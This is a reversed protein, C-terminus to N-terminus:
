LYDSRDAFNGLVFEGGESLAERVNYLAFFGEEKVLTSGITLPSTPKGSAAAVQIRVKVM